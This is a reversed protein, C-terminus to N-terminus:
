LGKDHDSISYLIFEIENKEMIYHLRIPPTSKQVTIRRVGKQGKLPEDNHKPLLKDYARRTVVELILNQWKKEGECSIDKLCSPSFKVKKHHHLESEKIDLYNHAFIEILNSDLGEPWTRRFSDWEKWDWDDVFVKFQHQKERINGKKLRKQLLVVDRPINPQKWTLIICSGKNIEDIKANIESYHALFTFWHNLYEIDVWPSIINPELIYLYNKEELDDKLDVYKTLLHIITVNLERKINEDIQLKNLNIMVKSCFSNSMFIKLSHLSLNKKHDKLSNITNVFNETESFEISDFILLGPEISIFTM